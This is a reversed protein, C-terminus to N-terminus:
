SEATQSSPGFWRWSGDPRQFPKYGDVYHANESIWGRTIHFEVGSGFSHIYGEVKLTSGPTARCLKKAWNDRVIRCRIRTSSGQRLLLGDFEYLIEVKGGRIRPTATIVTTVVVQCEHVEKKQPNAESKQKKSSSPQKAPRWKKNTM